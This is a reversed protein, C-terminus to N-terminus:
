DLAECNLISRDREIGEVVDALNIREMWRALRVGLKGSRRVVKRLHEHSVCYFNAIEAMAM